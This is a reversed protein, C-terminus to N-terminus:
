AISIFHTELPWRGKAPGPCLGPRAKRSRDIVLITPIIRKSTIRNAPAQAHPRGLVAASIVAALQPIGAVQRVLFPGNDLPGAAGSCLGVLGELLQGISFALVLARGDRRSAAGVPVRWPGVAKPRQFGTPKRVTLTCPSPRRASARAVLTGEAANIWSGSTPVSLYDSVAAPSPRALPSRYGPEARLHM